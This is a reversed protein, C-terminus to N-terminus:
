IACSLWYLQEAVDIGIHRLHCVEIKPLAVIALASGALRFGFDVCPHFVFEEHENVVLLQDAYLYAPGFHVSLSWFDLEKWKILGLSWYVVEAGM